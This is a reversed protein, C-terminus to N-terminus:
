CNSVILHLLDTFGVRDYERISESVKNVVQESEQCVQGVRHLLVALFFTRVDRIQMRADKKGRTFPDPRFMGEFKREDEFYRKVSEGKEGDFYTDVWCYGVHRWEDFGAIICSVQAEYLFAPENELGWNLFSVDQTRRLDGSKTKRNDRIEFLGKRYVYHPLHFSLEFM